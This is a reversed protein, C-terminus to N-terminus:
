RAASSARDPVPTHRLNLSRAGPLVNLLIPHCVVVLCDNPAGVVGRLAIHQVDGPEDVAKGVVADEVVDDGLLAVAALAEAVDHEAHCLEEGVDVALQIADGHVPVHDCDLQGDPCM